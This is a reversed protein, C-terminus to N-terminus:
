ISRAALDPHLDIRRPACELELRAVKLGAIRMDALLDVLGDCADDVVALVESTPDRTLPLTRGHYEMGDWRQFVGDQRFEIFPQAVVYREDGLVVPGHRLNHSNELRGRRAALVEADSAPRITVGTGIIEVEVAGL